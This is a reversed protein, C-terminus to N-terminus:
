SEDTMRLALFGRLKALATKEVQRLRFVTLGCDRGMDHYSREFYAERSRSSRVSPDASSNARSASGTTEESSNGVIPAQRIGRGPPKDLGFRECIVWAEFPSL